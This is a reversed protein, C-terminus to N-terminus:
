HNECEILLNQWADKMLPSAKDRLEELRKLYSQKVKSKGVAAGIHTELLSLVYSSQFANALLVVDDFVDSLTEETWNATGELVKSWYGALIQDDTLIWNHLKRTAAFDVSMRVNERVDKKINSFEVDRFRIWKLPLSPRASGIAM